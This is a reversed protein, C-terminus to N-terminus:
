ERGARLVPTPPPLLSLPDVPRGADRVEFHLHPGTARGSHGSHAIPQGRKVPDGEKVLLRQNHAYMTTREGDHKVVILKGYGSRRAGAYIVVGDCAARVETGNPVSLDIGEHARGDRRGFPSSLPAEVPWALLACETKSSSLIDIHSTQVDPTTTACGAAVLLGLTWVQGLKM